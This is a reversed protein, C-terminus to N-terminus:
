FRLGAVDVGFWSHTGVLNVPVGPHLADFADDDVCLKGFWHNELEQVYVRNCRSRGGEYNTSVVSTAVAYPASVVYNALLPISLFLSWYGFVGGMTVPVIMRTITGWKRMREAYVNDQALLAPMFRLWGIGYLIGVAVSPWLFARVYAPSAFFSMGYFVSFVVLVSAVFLWIILVRHLLPLRRWKDWRDAPSRLAEM